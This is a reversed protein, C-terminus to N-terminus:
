KYEAPILHLPTLKFFVSSYRGTLDFVCFPTPKILPLYNTTKCFTKILSLDYYLSILPLIKLFLELDEKWVLLFYSEM